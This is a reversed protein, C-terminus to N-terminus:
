RRVPEDGRLHGFGSGRPLILHSEVVSLGRRMMAAVSRGNVPADFM